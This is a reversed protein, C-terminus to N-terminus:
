FQLLNGTEAHELRSRRGRALRLFGGLAAGDLAEWGPEGSVKEVGTNKDDEQTGTKDRNSAGRLAYEGSEMTGRGVGRGVRGRGVGKGVGVGGVGAGRAWAARVVARGGREGVGEGTAEGVRGGDEESTRDM